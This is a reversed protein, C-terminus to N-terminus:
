FGLRYPCTPGRGRDIRQDPRGPVWGPSGPKNEEAPEPAPKDAKDVRKDTM